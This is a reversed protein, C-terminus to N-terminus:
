FRAPKVGSVPQLRWSDPANGLFALYCIQLLPLSVAEEDFPQM